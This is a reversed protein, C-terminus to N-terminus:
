GAKQQVHQMLTIRVHRLDGCASTQMAPLDRCQHGAECADDFAVGEKVAISCTPATQGSVVSPGGASQGASQGAFVNATMIGAAEWQKVFSM